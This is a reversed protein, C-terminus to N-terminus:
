FDIYGSSPVPPVEYSWMENKDCIELKGLEQRMILIVCPMSILYVVRETWKPLGNIVLACNIDKYSNELCFSFHPLFSKICTQTYIHSILLVPYLKFVTSNRRWLFLNLVTNWIPLSAVLLIVGSKGLSYNPMLIIVLYLSWLHCEKLPFAYFSFDM